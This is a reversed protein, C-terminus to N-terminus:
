SSLVEAFVQTALRPDAILVDCAVGPSDCLRPVVGQVKPRKTSSATLEGSSAYPHHM